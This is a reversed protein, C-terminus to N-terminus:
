GCKSWGCDKCSLCGESYVLTGGCEKCVEGEVKEGDRIYQSLFKRVQFLFSGVFVNDVDELSKVINKISVGHRLLLSITRTLKGVNSDAKCKELTSEIHKQAICKNYALQVLLDVANNTTANKEKSNTHAFLAFPSETNPQYVVTLYWKKGDGRLIKMRAPADDPLKIDNVIIEEKEECCEEKETLLRYSVIKNKFEIM